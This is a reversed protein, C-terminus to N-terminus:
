NFARIPRAWYSGSPGHLGEAPGQVYGSADMYEAWVNDMGAGADLDMSSTWYGNFSTPMSPFTGFGNLILNTYLLHNEDKSPMYWDTKGGFVYYKCDRVVYTDNTGYYAVIAATNAKGAGIETGQAGPVSAWQVHPFYAENNSGVNVQAAELYRYAVNNALFTAGSGLAAVADYFVIGGAPGTDGIAYRVDVACTATFNGDDTTATITAAGSGVPSVVGGASVTAVTPHNTSWTIAKNSANSPSITPILQVPDNIMRFSMATQGPLSVATVAVPDNVTCTAAYGQDNSTATITASGAQPHSVIATFQGSKNASSVSANTTSWVIAPDTADVPLVTATLTTSGLPDLGVVAKDLSVSSVHVGPSGTGMASLPSSASATKAIVWVYYSAYNTLGLITGPSGTLNTPGNAQAPPNTTLSYYLDYSTAGSVPTWSVSLKGSGAPYGVATVMPTGSISPVYQFSVQNGYTTGAKNTAWARLYYLTGSVLGSLNSTFVGTGAGDSTLSGSITPSPSTGWCVGRGTVANGGDSVVEGGSTATTAALNSIASTTVVALGDSITIEVRAITSTVQGPKTAIAELVYSGNASWVLPELYDPSSGSVTTGDDTYHISAGDTSCTIAFKTGPAFSGAGPTVVPTAVTESTTAAAVDQKLETLMGTDECANLALLAVLVALAAAAKRVTKM